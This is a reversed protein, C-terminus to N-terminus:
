QHQPLNQITLFLHNQTHLVSHHWDIHFHQQALYKNIHDISSTSPSSTITTPQFHFHQLLLSLITKLETIAFEMGPCMRSGKSFPLYTHKNTISRNSHFDNPQIFHNSSRHIAWTFIVVDTQSPIFLTSQSKSQLLLDNTCQRTIFPAISWFRLIEQIFSDLLDSQQEQQRLLIQIDNRHALTFLTLALATATTESGAFLVLKTNDFDLLQESNIWRQYVLDNIFKLEDDFKNEKDNGHAFKERTLMLISHTLQNGIDEYQCADFTGGLLTQGIIDLTLRTCVDTIDITFSNLKTKWQDILQQTCQEMMPIYINSIHKPSLNQILTHRSDPKRQADNLMSSSLPSQQNVPAKHFHTTSHRVLIDHAIDIDIVLLQNPFMWTWGGHQYSLWSLIELESWGLIYFLIKYLLWNLCKELFILLNKLM